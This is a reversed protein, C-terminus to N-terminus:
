SRWSSRRRWFPERERLVGSEFGEVDIKILAPIFGRNFLAQDLTQMSVDRGPTDVKTVIHNETDLGVSTEVREAVRNLAINRELAAAAMPDPEFAVTRCGVVGSALITYSGSM